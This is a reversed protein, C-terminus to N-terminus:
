EGVLKSEQENGPEAQSRVGALSQRTAGIERPLAECATREWAPAQSRPTLPILFVVLVPSVFPDGASAFPAPPYRDIILRDNPTPRRTRQEM